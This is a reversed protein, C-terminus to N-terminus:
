KPNDCSRLKKLHRELKDKYGFKQGCKECIFDLENLHSIKHHKELDCLITYRKPCLSCVFPNKENHIELNHHILENKSPLKEFCSKCEWDRPERRKNSIDQENAKRKSAFNKLEPGSIKFVKANNMEGIKTNISDQFLTNEDHLKFNIDKYPIKDELVTLGNTNDSKSDNDSLRLELSPKYHVRKFHRNLGEKSAFKGHCSGCKYRKLIINNCSRSSEIHKKLQSKYGFKKGCKDCIFDLEHRHTIKHHSHLHSPTTYKLPCVSCKFPHSDHHIDLNHHIFEHRTLFKEFCVKCEWEKQELKKKSMSNDTFNSPLSPTSKTPNEPLEKDLPKMSHFTKIHRNLAEKSSFKSQCFMCEYRKM